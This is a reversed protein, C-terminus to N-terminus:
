TLTLFVHLLFFSTTSSVLSISDSSFFSNSKISLTKSDSYFYSDFATGDRTVIREIPEYETGEDLVTVIRMKRGDDTVEFVDTAQQLTETQNWEEQMQAFAVVPLIIVALLLCVVSSLKKM